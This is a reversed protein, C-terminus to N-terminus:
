AGDGVPIHVTPSRRISRVLPDDGGCWKDLARVTVNVDIGLRQQARRAAEYAEHRDVAGVVLVDIDGPSPGAQGHYRLAWSGYVLAQEVGAVEVLEEALAQTPGFTKLVLATLEDAIHSAPNSRVLRVNGVRRSALVGARELRDVERQITGVHTGLRRALETLSEEVGPRLLLAALLRGQLHSRFIPLLPPASTRM